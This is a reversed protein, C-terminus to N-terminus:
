VSRGQSETVVPAEVRPFLAEVEGLETGPELDRWSGAAPVGPWRQADVRTDQGLMTWLTQAKTPMIPTMWRAVWALWQCLTALASEAKEPDVKRLAWPAMRDVFVNAVSANKVIAEAARRFRFQQVHEAPDEIPGCGSLILADLEAVHEAHLTPVAGGYNKATFKLVRSALNGITGALATNATQVFQEMSFESDATEPMSSALYFRTTDVDYNGLFTKIDFANGGSTSFKGGALNYFENAPVDAPLVYGDRTGHLMSPFVLCHFPINDKGIFHVLRTDEGQWWDKWADPTGREAMLEKLFSVYGIPADFWVYLVKGDGKDGVEEPLEVGWSMDRTIAREPVDELLNEIFASVNPKWSHERIWDGIHEDRLRPLDLYWHTTERRVPTNGCIKCAPDEFRLPDIWTGCNPCEDGRAEPHGCVYCTGTVYRDALFMEDHECYLQETTREKLYGNELLKRFFERSTEAHQPCTSTGSLADYRIDLADFTRAMDEHWRAVYAPYEEGAQEASITIAVGHDDSGSVSLVDEGLLRLTRTYIDAPLYAGSIHGFHLPGNAYLLASTVLTRPM